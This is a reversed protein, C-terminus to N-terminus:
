IFLDDMTLFSHISSHSMANTVGYTTILTNVLTKNTKTKHRFIAMREMLKEEYAKTLIYKGTSFKLECLHIIRDPRDIVMDVQAGPLGEAPDPPTQWTSTETAMVALGLAQKIQRDHRLCVAEFALGSWSRVAPSDIHKSWWQEERTNRGKVFKFYFATYSDTLRFVEERKKKGFQNWVEIFDCRVLNKLIKSLRNGNFGVVRSIETHTLGEKHTALTEVVQIYRDANSFLASYLEDFEIRLEGDESFFLADINQALSKEPNLMRYYYPVGGLIMYTQLITYRDWPINRSKLYDETEKLTFPALHIHTTVRAHLGGKNGILKERMWSTASGTAILVIDRRGMAWGNWFGELAKVFTSRNRDIWPMEDIFITKRKNKPLSALYDELANFAEFWDAFKKPTGGAYQSLKRAFQRLQVKTSVKRLGVYWFDFERQFFEEVLFTKGVRRRGYIAVLESRDSRMCKELLDKEGRRGILKSGRNKMDLSNYYAIPHLPLM